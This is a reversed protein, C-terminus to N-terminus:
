SRVEPGNEWCSECFDGLLAEAEGCAVCPDFFPAPMMVAPPKAFDPDLGMGITLLELPASGLGHWPRCTTVVFTPSPTLKHAM